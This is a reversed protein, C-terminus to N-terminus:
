LKEERQRSGPFYGLSFERVIELADALRGAEELNDPRYQEAQDCVLRLADYLRM